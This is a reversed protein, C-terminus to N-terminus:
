QFLAPRLNVGWPLSLDRATTSHYHILVMPHLIYLHHFIGCINEQQRQVVHSQFPPQRVICLPAAGYVPVGRVQSQTVMTEAARCCAGM